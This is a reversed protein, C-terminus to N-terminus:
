VFTDKSLFQKSLKKKVRQCSDGQVITGQVITAVGRMCQGRTVHLFTRQLQKTAAINVVMNSEKMGQKRTVLLIDRQLQKMAAINAVTNSEKM